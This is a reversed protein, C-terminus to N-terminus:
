QARGSADLRRQPKALALYAVGVAAILALVLPAAGAAQFSGETAVAHFCRLDHLKVRDM